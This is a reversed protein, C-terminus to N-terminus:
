PEERTKPRMRYPPHWARMGKVAAPSPHAPRLRRRVIRSARRPLRTAASRNSDHPSLVPPAPRPDV